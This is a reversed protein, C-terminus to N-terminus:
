PFNIKVFRSISQPETKRWDGSIKPQLSQEYVTKDWGGIAMGNRVDSLFFQTLRGLNFSLDLSM